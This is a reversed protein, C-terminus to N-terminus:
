AFEAIELACLTEILSTMHSKVKEMSPLRRIKAEDMYLARNIEIQLAHIGDAPRGYHHTSYGGAYPTNRCVTYGLSTLIEEAADTLSPHCSTGYRDGLVIEAREHGSDRDMPGGVSPMSHCDVLVAHKFKRRTSELLDALARHYPLYLENVRRVAEAFQLKGGYIEAGSSVVRAITGLGGAVRYSRTNVYDPLDDEFMTPDLEWAERNVDLYARPFNARILPVGQAPAEGFLEDVFSDESKRLSHADLRSAALLDDPYESGSHPSAFVLPSSAARPALVDFPAPTLEIAAEPVAAM